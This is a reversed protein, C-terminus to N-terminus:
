CTEGGVVSRRNYTRWERQEAQQEASPISHIQGSNASDTELNSADLFIVRTGIIDATYICQLTASGLLPGISAVYESLEPARLAEGKGTRVRAKITPLTVAKSQTKDHSCGFGLLSFELHSAAFFVISSAM